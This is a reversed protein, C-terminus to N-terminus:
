IKMNEFQILVTVDSVIVDRTYIRDKSVQINVVLVEQNQLFTFERVMLKNEKQIVVTQNDQYIM